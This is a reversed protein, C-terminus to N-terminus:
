LSLWRVGKCGWCGNHHQLPLPLLARGGQVELV